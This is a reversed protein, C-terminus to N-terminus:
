ATKRYINNNFQCEKIGLVEDYVRSFTFWSLEKQERKKNLYIVNCGRFSFSKQFVVTNINKLFLIFDKFTEKKAMGYSFHAYISFMTLINRETIMHRSLYNLYFDYNYTYSKCLSSFHPQVIQMKINKLFIVQSPQTNKKM